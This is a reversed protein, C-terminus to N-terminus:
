GCPGEAPLTGPFDDVPKGEASANVDADLDVTSPM